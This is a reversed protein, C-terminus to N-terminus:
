LVPSSPGGVYRVGQRTKLQDRECRRGEWREESVGVDQVGGKLEEGDWGGLRGAAAEM